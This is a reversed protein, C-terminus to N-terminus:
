KKTIFYHRDPIAWTFYDGYEVYDLSMDVINYDPLSKRLWQTIALCFNDSLTPDIYSNDINIYNRNLCLYLSKSEVLIKEIQKILEPCPYRSFKQDTIIVIDAESFSDVCTKTRKLNDLVDTDIVLKVKEFENLLVFDEIQKVRRMKVPETFFKMQLSNYVKAWKYLNTYGQLTVKKTTKNLDM